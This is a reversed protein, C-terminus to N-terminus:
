SNATWSPFLACLREKVYLEGFAVAYLEHVWTLLVTIFQKSRIGALWSLGRPNNDPYLIQHADCANLFLLVLRYVPIFHERGRM